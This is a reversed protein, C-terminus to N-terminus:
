KHAQWYSARRVDCMDLAENGGAGASAGALASVLRRRDSASASPHRSSWCRGFQPSINVFVTKNKGFKYSPFVDKRAESKWRRNECNESEM